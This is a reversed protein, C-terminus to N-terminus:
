IRDIPPGVCKMYGEYLEDVYEHGGLILDEDASIGLDELRLKQLLQNHVAPLDDEYGAHYQERYRTYDEMSMFSRGDTPPLQSKSDGTTLGIM